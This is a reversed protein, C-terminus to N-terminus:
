PPVAPSFTGTLPPRKFKEPVSGALVQNSRSQLAPILKKQSEQLACKLRSLGVGQDGSKLGASGRQFVDAEEESFVPAVAGTLLLLMGALDNGTMPQSGAHSKVPRTARDQAPWTGNASPFAGSVALDQLKKVNHQHNRRQYLLTLTPIAPNIHTYSFKPNM